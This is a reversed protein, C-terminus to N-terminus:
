LPAPRDGPDPDETRNRKLEFFSDADMLTV